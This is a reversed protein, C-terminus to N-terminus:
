PENQDLTIAHEVKSTVLIVRVGAKEIGLLVHVQDYHDVVRAGVSLNLRNHTHTTRTHASSAILQGGSPTRLLV